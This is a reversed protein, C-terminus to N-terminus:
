CIIKKKGTYLLPTVLIMTDEVRLNTNDFVSSHMAPVQGVLQQVKDIAGQVALIHM